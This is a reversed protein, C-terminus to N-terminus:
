VSEGILSTVLQQGDKPQISGVTNADTGAPAMFLDKSTAPMEAQAPAGADPTANQAFASGGILLACTATLLTTRLM